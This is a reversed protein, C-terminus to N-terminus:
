RCTFVIIHSAFLCQNCVNIYEVNQFREINSENEVCLDIRLSSEVNKGTVRTVTKFFNDLLLIKAAAISAVM